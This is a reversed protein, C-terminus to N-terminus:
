AKGLGRRGLFASVALAVVVASAGGFPVRVEGTGPRVIPEEPLPRVLDVDARRFFPDLDVSRELGGSRAVIRAGVPLETAELDVSYDGYDNSRASRNTIVIGTETVLRVDVERALFPTGDVAVGEEEAAGLAFLRGEVHVTRQFAREGGIDRSGAPADLRLLVSSRRLEKDFPVRYTEGQVTVEAAVENEPMAHAHRCITFDGQAGTVEARSDFCRSPADLGSWVLTVPAGAVPVGDSGVVRGVVIVRHSFVHDAVTLPALLAVVIALSIWKVRVVQHQVWHGM